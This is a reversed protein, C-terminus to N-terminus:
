GGGIRDDPDPQRLLRVCQIREDAPLEVLVVEVLRDEAPQDHDVAAAVDRGVQDLVDRGFAVAPDAPVAQRDGVDELGAQLPLVARRQRGRVDREGELEHAVRLHRKRQCTL